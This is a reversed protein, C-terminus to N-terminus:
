QKQDDTQITFFQIAKELNKRLPQLQKIETKDDMLLKEITLNARSLEHLGNSISMGIKPDDQITELIEQMRNHSIWETYIKKLTTYRTQMEQFDLTEKQTEIWNLCEKLQDRIAQLQDILKLSVAHAEKKTMQKKRRSFHFGGFVAAVLLSFTFGAVKAGPHLLIEPISLKSKGDSMESEEQKKKFFKLFM